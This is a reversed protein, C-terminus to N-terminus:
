FGPTFGSRKLSARFEKRADDEAKQKAAKKAMERLVKHNARPNSMCGPNDCCDPLRSPYTCDACVFVAAQEVAAQEVAAQEVAAQEVAAQEVAEIRINTCGNDWLLGRIAAEATAYDKGCGFHGASAYFTKEGDNSCVRFATEYGDQFAVNDLRYEPCVHDASVIFQM